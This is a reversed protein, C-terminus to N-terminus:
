NKSKSELEVRQIEGALFALCQASASIAAFILISLTM